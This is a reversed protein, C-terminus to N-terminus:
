GLVFLAALAALKQEARLSRDIAARSPGLNEIAHRLDDTSRKLRAAVSSYADHELLLETRIDHVHLGEEVVSRFLIACSSAPSTQYERYMSQNTLLVVAAWGSKVRFGLVATQTNNVADQFDGSGHSAM